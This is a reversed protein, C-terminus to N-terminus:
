LLGHKLTDGKVHALIDQSMWVDCSVAFKTRDSIREDWLLFFAKKRPEPAPSSPFPRPWSTKSVECSDVDM